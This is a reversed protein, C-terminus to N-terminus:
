KRDMFREVFGERGTHDKGDADRMRFGRPALVSCRIGLIQAARIGYEDAGTQGGSRIELVPIGREEVLRHIVTIIIREVNKPKVHNQKLTCLGNGAINLRIGSESFHPNARIELDLLEVTETIDESALVDIPIYKDGAAKRTVVEGPSSFDAAFGLTIDSWIANVKSRHQYNTSCDEMFSPEVENLWRIPIARDTEEPCKEVRELSASKIHFHKKIARCLKQLFNTNTVPVRESASALHQLKDHGFTVQDIKM